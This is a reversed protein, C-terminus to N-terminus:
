FAPIQIVDVSDKIKEAQYSEHIDTISQNGFENRIKALIRLCEQLSVGRFSNISTRIAKDFSAKIYFDINM